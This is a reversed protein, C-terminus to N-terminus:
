CQEVNAEDVATSWKINVLRLPQKDIHQIQVPTHFMTKSNTTTFYASAKQLKPTKKRYSVMKNTLTPRSSPLDVTTFCIHIIAFDTCCFVINFFIM